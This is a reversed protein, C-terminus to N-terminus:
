QLIGRVAVDDSLGLWVRLGRSSSDTVGTSAETGLMSPSTVDYVVTASRNRGM